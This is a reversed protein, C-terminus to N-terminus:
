MMTISGLRGVYGSAVSCVVTVEIYWTSGPAITVSAPAAVATGLTATGASGDGDGILTTTTPMILEIDVGARQNAVQAASTTSAWVVSDSITGNAGARVRFTLTGTSTSYGMMRLKIPRGPSTFYPSNAPITARMIITETSATSSSTVNSSISALVRGDSFGRTLVDAANVPDAARIRGASDRRVGSGATPSWLEREQTWEGAFSYYTLAVKEGPQLTFTATSGEITDTGGRQYLVTNTTGTNEIKFVDGNAAGTPLAQTTGSTSPNIRLWTGVSPSPLVTTSDIRTLPSPFLDFDGAGSLAAATYRGMISYGASTLHALTDGTLGNANEVSYGGLIDWHDILPVDLTDALAYMAQAFPTWNAVSVVNPQPELHLICDSNPYANRISTIATMITSVATPVQMDNGGIMIHVVTPTSEYNAPGFLSIPQNTAGSDGTTDSWSGRGTGAAQSGSQAVNNVVIGSANLVSIAAVATVNATSATIVIKSGVRISANPLSYIAVSGSPSTVNLFNNGSTAGDISITFAGGASVLAQFASGARDSTFTLTSGTASSYVSTVFTTWTGAFQMRADLNNNDCTRIWGSGGSPIDLGTAYIYPWANPRDFTPGTQNTCGATLSDGIVVEHVRQGRLAKAHGAKMRRTNSAKLNYASVVPDYANVPVNGSSIAWSPLSRPDYFYPLTKYATSGDGLKKRGTDTEVCEEGLQPVRNNSFWNARTDFAVKFDAM